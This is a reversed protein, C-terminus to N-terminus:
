AFVDPFNAVMVEVEEPSPGAESKDAESLRKVLHARSEIGYTISQGHRLITAIYPRSEEPDTNRDLHILTM